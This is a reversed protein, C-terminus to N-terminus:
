LLIHYKSISSLFIIIHYSLFTIIEKVCLINYEMFVVDIGTDIKLKKPNIHRSKNATIKM